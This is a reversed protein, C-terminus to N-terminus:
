SLVDDAHRHIISSRIIFFFATSLSSHKEVHVNQQDFNTAELSYYHM